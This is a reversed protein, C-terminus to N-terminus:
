TSCSSRSAAPHFAASGVVLSSRGATFVAVRKGTMTDLTVLEKSYPVSTLLLKGADDVGYLQLEYQLQVTNILQGSATDLQLVAYSDTEQSAAALLWISDDSVAMASASWQDDVRIKRLVAGSVPQVEIVLSGASLVYVLGSSFVVSSPVDAHWWDFPQPGDSAAADGVRHRLASPAFGLATNNAAAALCPSLAGAFILGSLVLLLLPVRPSPSSSMISLM